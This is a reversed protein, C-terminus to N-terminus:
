KKLRAPIIQEVRQRLEGSSRFRVMSREPIMIEIEPRKPNRGTRPKRVVVEFIGFNRLEVTRGEALEGSICDLTKQIVEAVQEQTMGLESAIKVAFDRKTMKIQEKESIAM